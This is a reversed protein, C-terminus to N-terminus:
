LEQLIFSEQMGQQNFNSLLKEYIDGFLHRDDSSNFDIENVKNIVPLYLAM